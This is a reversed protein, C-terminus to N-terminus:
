KNASGAVWEDWSLTWDFIDGDAATLPVPTGTIEVPDGIQAWQQFWKANEPSANICGHSVNRVGQDALSWPAAHVFEGNNSIRTAWEVETQYGGADLALGYTTSDMTMKEKKDIVVHIGSKTYRGEEELGASIPFSNVQQDGEYCYYYHENTNCKSVQAKGVTFSISRNEKGYAGNGAAVGFINIDVKVTTGAQWYTQPRWHVETDSFWSWAGTQAPTSTVTMAQEFAKRDAVASDLYVRVPMAIGVTTGDLPGIGPFIQATPTVTTFASQYNTTKGDTNNAVAAVTYASAYALPVGATWTTKAEDLVGDIPTGASDTVTVSELTGDSATVTLPQAPNVEAAGDAVSSTVTAEPAAKKSSSAAEDPAPKSSGTTCASLAVLSGAGLGGLMARRPMRKSLARHLRDPDPQSGPAPTTSM